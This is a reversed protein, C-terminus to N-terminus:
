ILGLHHLLKKDTATPKMRVHNMVPKFHRQLAVAIRRAYKSNATFYYVDTFRWGLLRAKQRMHVVYKSLDDTSGIYMILQDNMFFVVSTGTKEEYKELSGLPKLKHPLDPM